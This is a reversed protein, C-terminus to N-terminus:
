LSLAPKQDRWCPRQGTFQEEIAVQRNTCDCPVARPRHPIELIAISLQHPDGNQRLWDAPHPDHSAGAARRLLTGSMAAHSAQRASGATRSAMSASRSNALRIPAVPVGVTTILPMLYGSGGSAAANRRIM